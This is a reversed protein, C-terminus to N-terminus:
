VTSIPRSKQRPLMRPLQPCPTGGAGPTYAQDLSRVHTKQCCHKQHQPPRMSSEWPIYGLTFLTQSATVCRGRCVDYTHREKPTEGSLIMDDSGTQKLEEKRILITENQHTAPENWQSFRWHSTSYFPLLPFGANNGTNPFVNVREGSLIKCVTLKKYVGNIM